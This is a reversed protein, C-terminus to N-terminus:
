SDAKLRNLALLAFPCNAWANSQQLKQTCTKLFCRNIPDCASSSPADAAPGPMIINQSAPCLASTWECVRPPVSRVFESGRLPGPRSAAIGPSFFALPQSHTCAPVGCSTQTHTHTHTHTHIHTHTHTCALFALIYVRIHKQTHTQTHTHTYLYVVHEAAM